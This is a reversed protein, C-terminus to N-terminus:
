DVLATLARHDSVCAPVAEVGLVCLEETIIHDLQKNPTHAPSTARPGAVHLGKPKMADAIKKYRQNLDGLLIKPGERERLKELVRELQQHNVDQEVALHTAAIAVRRERIKATAIIANRAEPLLGRKYPGFPLSHRRGGHLPLVEVEEISGNVLLANGYLGGSFRRTPAFYHRMGLAGAVERAIDAKGSRRVGCDVEQLALIDAEFTSCAQAVAEVDGSYGDEPAGHKINFTVVRIPNPASGQLSMM